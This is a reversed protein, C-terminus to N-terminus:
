ENTSRLNELREFCQKVQELPNEVGPLEKLELLLPVGTSKLAMMALTWDITGGEGALPFLHSDEKGNNDHVHTSRIRSKMLRHATEVGENLNAHGTDFCFNLNLHTEELFMLLREASSLGNPTNELLIEVGRQHAFVTLEELASFAADLRRLEFEEGAAGLHQILYRFPVIEAIDLARKIQDVAEIRRAKVTETISVISQPGSRGGVDDSFMPSHLSHLKLQSDRFWHGLEGIQARDRYDLHQRACVIEVLPIGADWIRDLWVTTLRHSLFLRTSLARLM